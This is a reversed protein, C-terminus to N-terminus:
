ALLKTALSSLDRKYTRSYTGALKESLSTSISEELSILKKPEPKPEISLPNWGKELAKEFEYRLKLLLKAQDSEDKAKNPYLPLSLRKGNYERQREGNFYYEIYGRGSTSKIEPKTHMQRMPQRVLCT